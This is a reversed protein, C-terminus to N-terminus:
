YNNNIFKTMHEIAHDLDMAKVTRKLEDIYNQDEYLLDIGVTTNMAVVSTIFAPATAHKM